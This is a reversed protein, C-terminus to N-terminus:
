EFIRLPQNSASLLVVNKKHNLILDDEIRVGLRGPLYIGPEITFAMGPKIVTKSKSNISPEEHVMLGLGHGLGHGFYKGFGRSNIYDRALSDIEMCAIGERIGAIARKQAESVVQYVERAKKGPEGAAVTVTLDSAYGNCTAGFDIVVLEGKKIKRSSAEAHPLAARPGAAVISPFSFWGSGAKRLQYELEAAFDLESIGARFVKLARDLGAEATQAAKSIWELEDRDKLARTELLSKKLPKLSVGKLQKQYARYINHSLGAPEFGLKKMRLKKILEPIEKFKNKFIKITFGAIEQRSQERYRFDSFFWRGKKAFLLTGESGSFGSLYRVNALDTILIGDLREEGIISNLFDIARARKM